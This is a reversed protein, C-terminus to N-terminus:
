SHLVGTHGELNNLLVSHLLLLLFSPLSPSISIPLSSFSLLVSFNTLTGKFLM